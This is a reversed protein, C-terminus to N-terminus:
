ITLDRRNERWVTPSVAHKKSFARYFTNESGFGCLKLIQSNSCETELLLREANAIRVEEIFKGLSKGTQEKVFSFVYKESILLELAISSASLNIDAYHTHIYEVIDVKLKENNSRRNNMVIDCLSIAISYLENFLKTIDSIHEYEPLVLNLPKETELKENIIGRHTNYVIQRFSFFIQLHEQETMSCQTLKKLSDSFIQSVTNKEGAVIADYLRILAGIDFVKKDSYEQIPEYVYVGSSIYNENMSIAYKAQQYAIKSNKMDCVIRSLGINITIPIQLNVNITRILETLQYKISNIDCSDEKNFFIVFISENKLLNIATFTNKMSVKFTNEIEVAINQQITEEVGHVDDIRYVVKAVCFQDFGNNFYREVERKEDETYVGLILLNKLVSSKISDNLAEIKCLQEENITSIKTIANNIYSYENSSTFITKTAKSTVEVLKKIWLAEKMSFLLCLLLIVLTGIVVYLIVLELLSNINKKFLILPVGVVTCLGLKDSTYTLTIFRKSSLTIEDLNKVGQLGENKSYNHAFILKGENDTIYSFCEGRQDEHLIKNIIDEKDFVCAMISKQDISNFYSNNILCTVGEFSERKYYSSFFQQAPLFKVVYNEKFLQDYWENVSLNEYKLYKSYVDANNDSAIYNSIFIPNDKFMVYVNSLMDQTLSLSKFKHQLTNIDVYYESSPFGKLFFIQRFTDENRLLNAIEQAKIVQSELSVVGEKLKTSSKEITLQKALTYSKLLLPVVMLILIALISIYKICRKTFIVFTKNREMIKDLM